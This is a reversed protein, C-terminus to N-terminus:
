TLTSTSRLNLSEPVATPAEAGVAVDVPRDWDVAQEDILGVQKAEEASFRQEVDAPMMASAAASDIRVADGQGVGQGPVGTNFVAEMQKSMLNYDLETMAPAKLSDAHAPMLMALFDKTATEPWGIQKLGANLDRMLTPLLMLFRKRMAPSGKPQVSMVLDRGVQRYRKTADSDAGESRTSQVLAQSWVQCLFTRLFDPMAISSLASQLQILYRQQTRLDSEKSELVAM